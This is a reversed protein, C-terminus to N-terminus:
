RPKVFVPRVVGDDPTIRLSADRGDHRCRVVHRRDEEDIRLTRRGRGPYLHLDIRNPSPGKLHQPPRPYRPVAAAERVFVPIRELPAPADVFRGGEVPRPRGELPYWTGAPLWVPRRRAGPVLVPAVLLDDGLMYQDELADVHPEDPFELPMPRMLPIGTRAAQDAAALLYPILSYRLRGYRRAVRLGAPGYHWPERPTTGHYRALSSLMGFQVWRCFLETSPPPGTFGGIDSAWFAEGAFAASLAGRLAGRMGEWSVETDGAWTGPYRQSGLYGARRWVFGRGYVEETAEYVAESYWFLYMNHLERGLRGDHFLADEPVRDGYDPKLVAAGDRLQTKLHDKWWERAAPNSFDVMGVPQGHELRALGGRISRLLYGKGRAEDYIASGEPLYPNIWLCTSFGQDRWRKWTGPLNPFHEDNRVFDCADVGIKFYYHTRMWLPDLHIVDCPIREARLRRLVADVQRRSTYQCRSMWTGLTWKPPVPPRGTLATYTGLLAKLSRGFFLFADLKPDETLVSGGIYNFTGVEWFSRCSSHLMLGWGRTSFLLPLSKYSMDNSNTGCTDASWITARTSTKEVKNWKEGLGYFREDNRITWSLFPEARGQAAARRRLGLPGTIFAGAVKKRDLELITEGKPGLVRLAFPDRDLEITRRGLKLRLRNRPRTLRARTRARALDGLMDSTEEFRTQGQWFRVRVLDERLPILAMRAATGDALEVALQLEGSKLEARTIRAVHAYSFGGRHFIRGDDQYISKEPLYASAYSESDYTGAMGPAGAAGKAKKAM